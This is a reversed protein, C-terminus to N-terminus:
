SGTPTNLNSPCPQVETKAAARQIVPGFPSNVAKRIM